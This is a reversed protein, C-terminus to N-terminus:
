LRRWFAISAVLISPSYEWTVHQYRTEYRLLDDVIRKSDEAGANMEYAFFAVSLLLAFSASQFVRKIIDLYKNSKNNEEM